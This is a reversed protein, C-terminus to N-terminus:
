NRFQRQHREFSSGGWPDEISVTGRDVIRSSGDAGGTMGMLRPTRYNREIPRPAYRPGNPNKAGWPNDICVTEYRGPLLSSGNVGGNVPGTNAGRLENSPRYYEPRYNRSATRAGWPNDIDVREYKGPTLSSGEVGGNFPANELQTLTAASVAFPSVFAEASSGMLALAFVSVATKMM